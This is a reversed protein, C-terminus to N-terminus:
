AIRTTEVIVTAVIQRVRAAIPQVTRVPKGITASIMAAPIRAPAVIPMATPVTKARVVVEMVM